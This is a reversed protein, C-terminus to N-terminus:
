EARQRLSRAVGFTDRCGKEGVDGCEFELEAREGFEGQLGCEWLSLTFVLPNPPPLCPLASGPRPLPVNGKGGEDQTVEAEDFM